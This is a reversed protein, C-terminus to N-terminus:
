ESDIEYHYESGPRRIRPALKCPRSSQCESCVCEYAQDEMEGNEQNEVFEYAQDNEQNELLEYTPDNEGNQRDNNSPSSLVRCTLM